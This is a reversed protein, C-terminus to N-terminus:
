VQIRSAGLVRFGGFHQELGGNQLGSKVVLVLVM